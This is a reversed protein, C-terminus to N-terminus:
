ATEEPVKSPKLVKLQMLRRQEDWELWKVTWMYKWQRCNVIEIVTVYLTITIIQRATLNRSPVKHPVQIAATCCLLNRKQHFLGKPYYRRYRSDATNRTYHGVQVNVCQQFLLQLCCFGRFIFFVIIRSSISITMIASTVSVPGSVSLPVISRTVM